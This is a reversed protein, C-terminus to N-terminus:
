KGEVRLLAASIAKRVDPNEDELAKRLANQVGKLDKGKLGTFQGLTNAAAIRVRPNENSLDTALAPLAPIANEGIAELVRMAAIRSEADGEMVLKGLYPVAPKLAKSIAQKTETPAVDAYVAYQELSSLVAIRVDIDPEILRAILKPIALGPQLPALKGVCRAAAWRVFKDPDNLVKVLAPLAPAGDHRMSELLDLSALRARVDKDALGAIITDLSKRLDNGLEKEPQTAPPQYAVPRSVLVASPQAGQPVPNPGSVVPFQLPEPRRPLATEKDTDDILPKEGELVPISRALRLFNQRASAVQELTRRAQLRVNLDPDYSGLRALAAIPTTKGDDGPEVFARFLKAILERTSEVIQRDRTIQVREEPTVYKERERPPYRKTYDPGLSKEQDDIQRVLVAGANSCAETCARRVETDPDNFGEFALRVANAAVEVLDRRNQVSAAFNGTKKITQNSQDAISVLDAIARAAAQRVGVQNSRLSKGLVGKVQDIAPEIKGLAFLGAEKVEASPSKDILTILEPTLREKIFGRLYVGRIGPLERAGASTEAILQAAAAKAAPDNGAFVDKVLAEFKKALEERIESDVKIMEDSIVKLRPDELDARWETKFLLARSIDGLHTLKEAKARLNAQRAKIIEANTTTSSESKLANRFVEVPDRVTSSTQRARARPASCVAVAILLAVALPGPRRRGLLRRDALPNSM